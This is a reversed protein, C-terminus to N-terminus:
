AGKAYKRFVEDLSQELVRLSLLSAGDRIIVSSIEPRLDWECEIVLINGSKNVNRVGKINSIKECIKSTIGRAKFEILWDQGVKRDLDGVAGQFVMKGEVMIGVQDCINQVHHILHSSVLITVAEEKNLEIFINLMDQVGQPDISQTPEDLFAIRPKKILVNAIGLRQKMGKSFKRVQVDASNSLGVRSIAENIRKLSEDEQIRNLRATYRLNEKATINEYFGIKEPLYGVIQKVKLAEKVPDCGFVSSSGSTPETLGLLMLLLTTKGAGNPGLLGFVKGEEISLNLGDVATFNEYRMTLDNVEIASNGIM